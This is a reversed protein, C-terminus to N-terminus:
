RAKQPVGDFFRILHLALCNFTPNRIAIDDDGCLHLVDDCAKAGITWRCLRGDERYEVQVRNSSSLVVQGALLRSLPVHAAELLRISVRVRHLLESAENGAETLWEMLTM